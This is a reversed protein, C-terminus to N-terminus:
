RASSTQQHAELGLPPVEARSRGAGTAREIEGGFLHSGLQAVPCGFDATPLPRGM